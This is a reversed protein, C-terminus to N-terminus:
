EGTFDPERRDRMAANGENFDATARLREQEKAEHATAAEVRDALDGRLTARISRVALPASIAIERALSHATARLSGLDALRDALGITVAEEGKVRRGTFLLEAATQEGVLRPLTVSLGFGHHFGLRAFNASFRAEPAAIRFDSSLALGLGGGIAAGQVAAVVPTQTRFIRAAAAYLDDTTSTRGGSSFDAGACFHKGDACLVAARCADDTDLAELADAVGGIQDLSFFNNPPNRLEITAVFDDGITAALAANEFIPTTM